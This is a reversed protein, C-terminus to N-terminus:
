SFGTPEGILQGPQGALRFGAGNGNRQTLTQLALLVCAPDFGAHLPHPGGRLTAGPEKSRPRRGLLMAVHEM